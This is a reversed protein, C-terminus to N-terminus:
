RGDLIPSYHVDFLGYLCCISGNDLISTLSCCVSYRKDEIHHVCKVRLLSILGNGIVLYTFLIGSSGRRGQQSNEWIALYIM